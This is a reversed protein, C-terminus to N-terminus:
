TEQHCEAACPWAYDHPSPCPPCPRRRRRRCATAPAASSSHFLSLPPSSTLRALVAPRRPWSSTVPQPGPMRRNPPALAPTPATSGAAMALRARRRGSPRRRPAPQRSYILLPVLEVVLALPVSDRHREVHLCGIAGIGTDARLSDRTCPEAAHRYPPTPHGTTEGRGTISRTVSITPSDRSPRM